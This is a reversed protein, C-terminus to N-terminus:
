WFHNARSMKLTQNAQACAILSLGTSVFAIPARKLQTVLSQGKLSALRKFMFHAPIVWLRRKSAEQDVYQEFWQPNRANQDKIFQGVHGNKGAEWLLQFLWSNIVSGAIIRREHRLFGSIDEHTDYFHMADTVRVITGIRRDTTFGDTLIMAALFGDEVPLAPPMWIKKLEQARGCYLQGSISNDGAVQASAALSARDKISLSTKSKIAKIPRDTAVLATPDHELRTILKELVFEDHFSIDSDMLIIYDAIPDSLEHVFANWAAAKGAVPLERVEPASAGVPYTEFLRLAIVATQDSCGNPVCILQVCEINLRTQNERDFITQTFLSQLMAEIRHEENHALIGIAIRLSTTTPTSTMQHGAMM